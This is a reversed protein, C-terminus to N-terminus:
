VGSHVYVVVSVYGQSSLSDKTRRLILPSLIMKLRKLSDEQAIFHGEDMKEHVPSIRKWIAYDSWPEHKIFKVLSYIDDISNQLPTGTICWRADATLAFSAKAVGTHPNKILHAEDLVVRKWNMRFLPKSRFDNKLSFESQLIGDLTVDLIWIMVFGCLSCPIHIFSTLTFLIILNCMCYQSFIYLVYM